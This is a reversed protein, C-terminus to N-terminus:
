VYCEKNFKENECIDEYDTERFQVSRDDSKKVNCQVIVIGITGFCGDYFEM